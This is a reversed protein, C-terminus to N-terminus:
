IVPKFQCPRCPLHVEQGVRRGQKKRAKGKQKSIYETVVQGKYGMDKLGRGEVAKGQVQGQKPPRERERLGEAVVSRSM